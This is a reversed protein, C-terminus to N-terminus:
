FSREIAEFTVERGRFRALSRYGVRWLLDLGEDFHVALNAAKHADASLTVPIERHFAARLITENPYCDHCPKDWGSTNLEMVMGSAKVADLAEHILPTVDCTPYANFKKVLDLHGAIDFLGSEAMARVTKWYRVIAEDREDATRQSWYAPVTDISDEGLYHVSGITYDLRTDKTLPALWAASGDLWDFELGIRLEIDKTEAQLQQLTTFYTEVQDLQLAWDPATTAEPSAKFYHDSFGLISVQQLRAQRIFEAPTDAGDSFTTHTHFSARKM